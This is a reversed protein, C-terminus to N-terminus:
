ITLSNPVRLTDPKFRDGCRWRFWLTKGRLLNVMNHLRESESDGTVEARCGSERESGVSVRQGSQDLLELYPFRGGEVVDRALGHKLKGDIIYVVDHLTM